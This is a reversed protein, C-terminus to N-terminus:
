RRIFFQRFDFYEFQGNTVNGIKIMHKFSLYVRSKGTKKKMEKSEKLKQCLNQKVASLHHFISLAFFYSKKFKGIQFHSKLFSNM